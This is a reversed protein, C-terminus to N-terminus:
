FILIFPYPFAPSPPACRYNWSKPIQHLSSPSSLTRRFKLVTNSSYRSKVEFGPICCRGLVWMAKAEIELVAFILWFPLSFPLFLLSLFHASPKVPLKISNEIAVSPQRSNQQEGMSWAHLSSWLIALHLFFCFLYLLPFLSLFLSPIPYILAYSPSSPSPWSLHLPFPPLVSLFSLLSTTLPQFSGM